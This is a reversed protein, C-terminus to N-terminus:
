PGLPRKSSFGSNAGGHARRWLLHHHRQRNFLKQCATYVNARFATSGTIYVDVNGALLSPAGALGLALTLLLTKKMNNRNKTKTSITQYFTNNTEIANTIPRHHHLDPMTRPPIRIVTHTATDGSSLTAIAPWNAMATGSTLSNTARLTYTGYLGTTYQSPPRPARVPSPLWSRRRARIRWM